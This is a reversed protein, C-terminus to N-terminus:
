GRIGAYTPPENPDQKAIEDAGQMEIARKFKGLKDMVAAALSFDLDTPGQAEQPVPRGPVTPM